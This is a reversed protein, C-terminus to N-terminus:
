TRGDCDALRDRLLRRARFGRIKVTALSLGLAAAIEREGADDHVRLALVARYNGDLAALEAAIRARTRAQDVLQDPAAATPAGVAALHGALADVRRRASRRRRLSSIAATTAIRYLWTHYSADGRFRDRHRHALLLAEQAVDDADHPDRVINRAVAYVFRRDTALM